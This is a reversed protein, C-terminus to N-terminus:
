TNLRNRGSDLYERAEEVLKRAKKVDIRYFRAFARKCSAHPSDERLLVDIDTKANMDTSNHNLLALANSLAILQEAREWRLESRRNLPFFEIIVKAREIKSKDLGPRPVAFIGNFTILDEPKPDPCGIPLVLHPKELRNLGAISQKKRGRKGAIPFYNKKLPTNCKKCAAAYNLPEYALWYYGSPYYAGLSISIGTGTPASWIRVARKPRFHELDYEISGGDDLDALRRECYVCKNNQLRIFVPKVKPWISFKVEFYGLKVLEKTRSKADELWGSVENEVLSLLEAESIWYSIM